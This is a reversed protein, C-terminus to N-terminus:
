VIFLTIYPVITWEMACWKTTGNNGILKPRVTLALLQELQETAHGDNGSRREVAWMGGGGGGLLLTSTTTQVHNSVEM